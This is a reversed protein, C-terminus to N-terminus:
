RHQIVEEYIERCPECEVAGITRYSGDKYVVLTCTHQGGRSIRQAVPNLLEAVILFLSVVAVAIIILETM